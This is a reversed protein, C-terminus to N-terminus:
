KTSRKGETVGSEAPATTESPAVSVLRAGHCNSFPAITQADAAILVVVGADVVIQLTDSAVFVNRLHGDRPDVGELGNRFQIRSCKMM